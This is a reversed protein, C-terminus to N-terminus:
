VAFAENAAPSPTSVAGGIQRRRSTPIPAGFSHHESTCVAARSSDTSEAGGRVGTRAGGGGGSTGVPSTTSSAMVSLSSSSPKSQMFHTVLDVPLPFIITSNKEASITSLTQLYRLQIAFPSENIVDAAEKLAQSAKQEGKAAIVQNCTLFILYIVTFISLVDSLPIILCSADPIQKSLIIGM